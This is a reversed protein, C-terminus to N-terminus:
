IFEGTPFKIDVVVDCPINVSENCHILTEDMDFILTKSDIFFTLHNIIKFSDLFICKKNRPGLTVKKSALDKPNAAKALNSYLM